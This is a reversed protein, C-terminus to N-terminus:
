AWSSALVTAPGGSSARLWIKQHRISRASAKFNTGDLRGHDNIGDYSFVVVAGATVNVLEHGVAPFGADFEPTANYTTTTTTAVSVSKAPM